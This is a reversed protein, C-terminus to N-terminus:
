ERSEALFQPAHEALWRDPDQYYPNETVVGGNIAYPHTRLVKMVQAGNFRTVDYLCISIWPKGQIFNNLRSEYAMLHEVGPIFELAWVMDATARVNRPGNAQSAVFFENLGRDMDWPSFVGTPCYLEETSLVRFRNTDHTHDACQPCVAAMSRHFDEETGNAHCYLQLDGDKDGASLFGFVIEDREEATEYLGCLHAGWNCTYDRFGLDLVAGTSTTIHM